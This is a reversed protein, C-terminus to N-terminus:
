SVPLTGVQVITKNCQSIYLLRSSTSVRHSVPVLSFIYVCSISPYLCLHHFAASWFPSWSLSNGLVRCWGWYGLLGQRPSRSPTHHWPLVPAVILRVLWLVYVTVIILAESTVKGGDRGGQGEEERGRVWGRKGTGGTGTLCSRDTTRPQFYKQKRGCHHHHYFYNLCFCLLVSFAVIFHWPTVTPAASVFLSSALLKVSFIAFTCMFASMLLM